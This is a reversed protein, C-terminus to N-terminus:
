LNKLVSYVLTHKDSQCHLHEPAYAPLYPSNERCNEQWCHGTKLRSIYYRVKSQFMALIFLGDTPKEKILSWIQSQIELILNEIDQAIEDCQCELKPLFQLTEILSEEISKSKHDM